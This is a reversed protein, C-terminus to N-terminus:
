GERPTTAFIAAARAATAARRVWSRLTTVDDCRTLKARQTASLTLGRAEAITVISERLSEVQGLTRGEDRGRKEREDFAKLLAPSQRAVLADLVAQDAALADFWARLPLPRVFCRDDIASEPALTKWRSRGWECVTHDNVDVAFVRRVGRAKLKRAKDSLKGWDSTDVIEFALEELYRGGTAPDKGAPCVSVDPAFENDHDTRTLMDVAGQFGAAVHAALLRTLDFHQFAHPPNAGMALMVRQGDVIEAHSDEDLTLDDVAPLRGSPHEGSGPAPTKSPARTAPADAGPAHVPHAHSSPALLAGRPSKPDM